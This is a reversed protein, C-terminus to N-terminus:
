EARRPLDKWRGPNLPTPRCWTGENDSTTVQGDARWASATLACLFGCASWRRSREMPASRHVFLRTRACPATAARRQISSRWFGRRRRERNARVTSTARRQGSAPRCAFGTSSARHRYQVHHRPQLGPIRGSRRRWSKPHSLAHRTAYRHHLITGDVIVLGLPEYLGLSAAAPGGGPEGTKGDSAASMIWIDGDHTASARGSSRRSSILGVRIAARRNWPNSDPATISDTVGGVRVPM